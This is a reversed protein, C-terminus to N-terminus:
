PRACMHSLDSLARGHSSPTLFSTFGSAVAGRAVRPLNLRSHYQIPMRSSWQPPEMPIRANGDHRGSLRAYTHTHVRTTITTTTTTSIHTRTNHTHTHTHTCSLTMFCRDRRIFDITYLVGLVGGLEAMLASQMAASPGLTSLRGLLMTCVATLHFGVVAGTAVHALLLGPRM